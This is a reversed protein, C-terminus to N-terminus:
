DLATNKAESLMEDADAVRQWECVGSLVEGHGFGESQIERRRARRLAAYRGGIRENQTREHVDAPRVEGESWAIEIENQLRSEKM